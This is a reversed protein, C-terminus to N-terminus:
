LKNQCGSILELFRQETVEETIDVNPCHFIVSNEDTVTNLLQRLVMITNNVGLHYAKKQEETDFSKDIEENAKSVSKEVEKPINSAWFSIDGFNLVM